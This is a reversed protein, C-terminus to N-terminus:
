AQIIELVSVLETNASAIYEAALSIGYRAVSTINSIRTALCNPMVRWWLLGTVWDPAKGPPGRHPM